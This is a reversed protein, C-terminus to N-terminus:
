RSMPATLVGQLLIPRNWSRGDVARSGSGRATATNDGDGEGM